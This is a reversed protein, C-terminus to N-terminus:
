KKPFPSPSRSISRSYSRSHSRSMSRSDRSRRSRSVPSRSRSRSASRSRSRDYRRPRKRFDDLGGDVGGGGSRRDGGYRDSSQCLTFHLEPSNLTVPFPIVSYKLRGTEMGIVAVAVGGNVVMMEVGLVAGPAVRPAGLVAVADVHISVVIVLGVSDVVDVGIVMVETVVVM